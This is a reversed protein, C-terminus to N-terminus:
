TDQTEDLIIVANNSDDPLEPEFPAEAPSEEVQLRKIDELIEAENQDIGGNDRLALDINTNMSWRGGGFRSTAIEVPDVVGRDLYIADTEAVTKRLLAEQEETNQWLPTFVVSWSEPEVGAFPGDKALMVLRILKDLIPKLKSEQLQKIMDYFNRVDSDGTANLGAPSRGFLLTVPICSVSSLSLMFRDIIEPIGSVNTSIKEFGELQDLAMMNTNSKYFNADDLRKLLDTSGCDATLAESLGPIKIVCNVFDQMIASLNAFASGYRTIEGNISMIASDGWGQNIMKQRPAIQAWDLRLIRSHHVIFNAGTRYDNIQYFDPYGYNCDNLDKCIYDTMIQCQYRDFVHLWEISQINEEFIPENLERGDAVGMVIVCAGYLRAWKIMDSLKENLKLDELYSMTLNDRDGEIEYGQRLMESGVIDIIRRTLGDGRYLEDLDTVSLIPCSRYCISAAKDRGRIGLGTDPNVFGDARMFKLASTAMKKLSYKM